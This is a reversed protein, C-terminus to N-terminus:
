GQIRSTLCNLSWNELKVSLQDGIGPFCNEQTWFFVEAQEWRESDGTAARLGLKESTVAYVTHEAGRPTVLSGLPRPCCM